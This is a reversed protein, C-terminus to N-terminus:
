DPLQQGIANVIPIHSQIQVVNWMKQHIEFQQVHIEIFLLLVHIIRPVTCVSGKLSTKCSERNRLYPSEAANGNKPISHVRGRIKRENYSPKMEM